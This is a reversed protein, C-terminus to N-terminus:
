CPTLFRGSCIGILQLALGLELPDLSFLMLQDSLVYSIEFASPVRGGVFGLTCGCNWMLVAVGARGEM